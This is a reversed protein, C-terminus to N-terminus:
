RPTVNGPTGVEEDTRVAFRRFRTYTALGTFRDVLAGFAGRGRGIRSERMQDPVDIGLAEDFRFTTVSTATNPANGSRVETKAVRGTAEEVWAVASISPARPTAPDIAPPAIRQLRLERLAVGSADDVGGLSYTFEAQYYPQLWALVVLPSSLPGLEVLSHRSAERTIEEARRVADEFPQLFLKTLREQQDRVPRGNVSTVDRFALWTRETGPYRVLLFDATLRRREGSQWDQRFDEQAVVNSFDAVFEKVYAAARDLVDRVAPPAPQAVAAPGGALLMSLLAASMRRM